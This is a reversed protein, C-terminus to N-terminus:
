GSADSSSDKNLQSTIDQAIEFIKVVHGNELLPFYSSSLWCTQGHKSRRPAVNGRTKGAQLDSWFQRYDASASYDSEFLASYSKGIMDHHQYDLLSLFPHSANQVIGDASLEVFAGHKLLATISEVNELQGSATTKKQSSKQNFWM